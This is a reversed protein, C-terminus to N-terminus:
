TNFSFSSFINLFRHARKNVRTAPPETSASVSSSSDSITATRLPTAPAACELLVRPARCPSSGGESLRALTQILSDTSFVCVQPTDHHLCEATRKPLLLGAIGMGWGSRAERCPARARSICIPAWAGCLVSLYTSYSQCLSWILAHNMYHRFENERVPM